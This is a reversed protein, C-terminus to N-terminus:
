RVAWAILLARLCRQYSLDLYLNGGTYGSRGVSGLRWCPFLTVVPHNLWYFTRCQREKAQVVGGVM